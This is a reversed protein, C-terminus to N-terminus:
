NGIPYNTRLHKSTARLSNGAQRMLRVLKKREEPNNSGHFRDRLKDLQEIRKDLTKRIGAHRAGGPEKATAARAAYIATKPTLEGKPTMGVRRLYKAKAREAARGLGSPPSAKVRIQRNIADAEKKFGAIAAGGESPTIRGRRTADLAIRGQRVLSDLNRRGRDIIYNQRGSIRFFRKEGENLEQTLSKFTKM